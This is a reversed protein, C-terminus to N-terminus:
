EEGRSYNRTNDQTFPEPLEMWAVVDYMYCNDSDASFGTDSGGDSLVYGIMMNKRKDCCLAEGEPLRESCPIWQPVADVEPMQCAIVIADVIGLARGKIGDKRLDEEWEDLEKLLVDLDILRM